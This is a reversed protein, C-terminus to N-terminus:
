ETMEWYHCWWKADVLLQLKEHWCFAMDNGPELFYYCNGCSDGEIPTSRLASVKIARQTRQFQEEDVVPESM